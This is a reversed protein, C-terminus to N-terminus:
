PSKLFNNVPSNKDSLPLPGSPEVMQFNVKSLSNDFQDENLTQKRGKITINPKALETSLLNNKALDKRIYKMDIQAIDSPDMSNVLIQSNLDRYDSM